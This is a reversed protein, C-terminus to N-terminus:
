SQYLATKTLHNCLHTIPELLLTEVNLRIVPQKARTHLKYFDVTNYNTLSVLSDAACAYVIGDQAPAYQAQEQSNGYAVAIRKSLGLIPGFTGESTGVPPQRAEERDDVTGLVPVPSRPAM